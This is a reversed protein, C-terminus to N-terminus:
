YHPFIELISKIDVVVYSNLSRSPHSFYFHSNETLLPPVFVAHVALGSQAGSRGLARFEYTGATCDLGSPADLARKNAHKSHQAVLALAFIPPSWGTATRPHLPIPPPLNTFAVPRRDTVEM